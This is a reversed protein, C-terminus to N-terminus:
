GRREGNRKVFDDQSINRSAEINLMAYMEEYEQEPIHSMYEVLLEEPSVLTNQKRHLIGISVIAGISMTGLVFVTLCITTRQKKKRRARRKM